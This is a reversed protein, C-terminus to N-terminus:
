ASKFSCLVVAFFLYVGYAGIFSDHMLAPPEERDPKEEIDSLQCTYVLLALLAM